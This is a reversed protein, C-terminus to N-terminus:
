FDPHTSYLVAADLFNDTAFFGRDTTRFPAEAARAAPM